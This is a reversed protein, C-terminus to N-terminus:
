FADLKIIFFYITRRIFASLFNKNGTVTNFSPFIRHAQNELYSDKFLM